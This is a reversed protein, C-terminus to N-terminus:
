SKRRVLYISTSVKTIFTNIRQSYGVLLEPRVKKHYTEFWKSMRKEILSQHDNIKKKKLALFNNYM